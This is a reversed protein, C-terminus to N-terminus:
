IGQRKQDHAQLRGDRKEIGAVASNLCLTGGNMVANEAAALGLEWPVVTGAEPAYLGMTVDPSLNPELSLVEDRGLLKLGRVGNALGQSMKWRLTEEGNPGFSVMLSGCPAYRVGLEACLSGFSQVARVCM